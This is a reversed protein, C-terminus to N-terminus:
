INFCVSEENYFEPKLRIKLQMRFNKIKIINIIEKLTRRADSGQISLGLDPYYEFGKDYREQQSINLTTNNKITETDLFSYLHILVKKYKKTYYSINNIKCELIYSGRLNKQFLSAEDIYPVIRNLILNGDVVQQTFDTSNPIIITNEM